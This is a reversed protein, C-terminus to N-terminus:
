RSFANGLCGRYMKTTAMQQGKLILLNSCEVSVFFYLTYLFHFFMLCIVLFTFLM